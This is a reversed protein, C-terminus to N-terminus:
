NANNPTNDEDDLGIRRNNFYEKWPGHGHHNSSRIHQRELWIVLGRAKSVDKETIDRVDLGIEKDACGLAKELEIINDLVQQMHKRQSVVDFRIAELATGRGPNFFVYRWFAYPEVLNAELIKIRKREKWAWLAPGAVIPVLIAAIAIIHTITLPGLILTEM